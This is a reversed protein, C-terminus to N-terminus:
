RRIRMGSAINHCIIDLRAIYQAVDSIGDQIDKIHCMLDNVLTEYALIKSRLNKVDYVGIVQKKEEMRRTFLVQHNDVHEGYAVKRPVVIPIKNHYLALMISGPGGHTIVIKADSIMREMDQFDLLREYKCFRPLFECYGLQVFVGDALHEALNDIEKVLRDFQQEQTGVTVFIM